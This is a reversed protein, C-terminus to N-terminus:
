SFYTINNVNADIDMYQVPLKKDPESGLFFVPIPQLQQLQQPERPQDLSMRDFMNSLGAIKNDDDHDLTYHIYEADFPLIGLYIEDAYIRINSNRINTIRVLKSNVLTSHNHNSGSFIRYVYAGHLQDKSPSYFCHNQTTPRQIM